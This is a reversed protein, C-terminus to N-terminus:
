GDQAEAWPGRRENIMAAIQKLAAFHGNNGRSRARKVLRKTYDNGGGAAVWAALADIDRLTVTDWTKM